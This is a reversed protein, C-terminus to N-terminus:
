NRGVKTVSFATTRDEEDLWKIRKDDEWIGERATGDSM